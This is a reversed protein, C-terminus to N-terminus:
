KGANDPPKLVLHPREEIVKLLLRHIQEIHERTSNNTAREELTLKVRSM